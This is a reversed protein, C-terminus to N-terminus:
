EAIGVRAALHVFGHGLGLAFPLGAFAHGLLAEQNIRNTGFVQARTKSGVGATFLGDIQFFEEDEILLEDGEHASAQGNEFTEVQQCVAEGILFQTAVDFGNAVLHSGAGNKRVGEIPM